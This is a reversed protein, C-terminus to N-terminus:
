ANNKIRNCAKIKNRKNFEKLHLTRLQTILAILIGIWMKYRGEVRQYKATEVKLMM